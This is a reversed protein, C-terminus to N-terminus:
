SFVQKNDRFYGSTIAKVGDQCEIYFVDKNDHVHYALVHTPTGTIFNFGDLFHKSM